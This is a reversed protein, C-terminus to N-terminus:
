RLRFIYKVRNRVDRQKECIPCATHYKRSAPKIKSKSPRDRHTLLCEFRPVGRKNRFGYVDIRVAATFWQKDFHSTPRGRGNLTRGVYLAGKRGWIEYVCNSTGIHEDYWAKFHKQKATVGRGKGRLRWQKHKDHQALVTRIDSRVSLSDAILEDLLEITNKVLTKTFNPWRGATPWISAKLPHVRVEFLKDLARSFRASSRPAM